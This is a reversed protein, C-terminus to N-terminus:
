KKRSDIKHSKMLEFIGYAIILIGILISILHFSGFAGESSFKDGWLYNSERWNEVTFYILIFGIFIIVWPKIMVFVEKM